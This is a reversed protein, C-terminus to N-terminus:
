SDKVPQIEQGEINLSYLLGRMKNGSSVSKIFVSYSAISFHTETGNEAFEGQVHPLCFPFLYLDDTQNLPAPTTHIYLSVFAETKEGDVYVDMTEIDLPPCLHYVYVCM